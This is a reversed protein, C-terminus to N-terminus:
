GTTDLISFVAGQPDELVAFTGEGTDMPPAVVSGGLEATRAVAAGADAVAFYVSWYAPVDAPVQDPMMMMGAVEDGDLTFMTYAVPSRLDTEAKWGFVEAYFSAVAHPDRTLLEVWRVTGTGRDLYVGSPRPGSIIGFMGGTPDAVVAIRADPLDFAPQLVAGGAAQVTAATADVDEVYFFVTWLPPMGEAPVHQMMGAVELDGVAGIAYMGMPTDSRAVTWGLLTAYFDIAGEVDSTSLDVWNPAGYTGASIMM